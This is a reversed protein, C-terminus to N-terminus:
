LYVTAWWMFSAVVGASNTLAFTTTLIQGGVGGGGYWGGVQLFVKYLGRIGRLLLM